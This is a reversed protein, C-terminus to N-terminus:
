SGPSRISRLAQEAAAKVNAPENSRTAVKELAPRAKVLATQGMRTLVQAATFRVGADPNDLSDVAIMIIASNTIEIHANGLANLAAVRTAGDMPRAFYGRVAAVVSKDDHALHLLLTAASAQARLNRDTRKLFALLIPIVDSPPSPQLESFILPPTAQLRADALDCLGGIAHLSHRLLEASDPRRGIVSLAFAADIKVNLDPHALAGLVAPLAKSIEDAPRAAIQDTVRLLEDYKPLATPDYHDVLKEFFQQLSTNARVAQSQM